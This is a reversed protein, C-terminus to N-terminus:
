GYVSGALTSGIVTGGNSNNIKFVAYADVYTINTSGILNQTAPYITVPNSNNFNVTPHFNIKNSVVTPPTASVAFTNIGTRDTWNTLNGGTVSPGNSADLWLSLGTTVGGPAQASVTPLALLIALWCFLFSLRTFSYTSTYIM